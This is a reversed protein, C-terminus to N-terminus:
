DEPGFVLEASSIAPVELTQKLERGRVDRRYERRYRSVEAGRVFSPLLLVLGAAVLSKVESGPSPPREDGRAVDRSLHRRLALDYSM